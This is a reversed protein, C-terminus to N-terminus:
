FHLASVFECDVLLSNLIFLHNQLFSIDYLLCHLINSVNRDINEITRIHEYPFPVKINGISLYKDFYLKADVHLSKRQYEKKNMQMFLM